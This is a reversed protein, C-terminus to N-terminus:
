IVFNLKLLLTELPHFPQAQFVSVTVSTPKMKKCEYLTKQQTHQLLLGKLSSSKLCSTGGENCAENPKSAIKCFIENKEGKYTM